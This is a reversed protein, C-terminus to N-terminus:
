KKIKDYEVMFFGWFDNLATKLKENSHDSRIYNSGPTEACLIDLLNLMGLNKNGDGLALLFENAMNISNNQLSYNYTIWDDFVDYSNNNIIKYYCAIADIDTAFDSDDYRASDIDGKFSGEYNTCIIGNKSFLGNGFYMGIDPLALTPFDFSQITLASSKRLLGMEDGDSIGDGDTDAKTPDTYIIKGNTTRMGNKEFTDPLGDGDTDTLDFDLLNNSSIHSFADLLQEATYAYYLEGGTQDTVSQLIKNDYIAYLFQLELEKIIIYYIFYVM